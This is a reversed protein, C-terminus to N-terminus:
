NEHIQTQYKEFWQMIEDSEYRANEKIMLCPVQVKGGKKQLEERADSEEAINKTPIQLHLKALKDLVKKCFPCGTKIYLLLDHKKM